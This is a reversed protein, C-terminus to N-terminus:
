RSRELVTRGELRLRGLATAVEGDFTPDNWGSLAVHALHGLDGGAAADVLEPGAPDDVPTLTLGPGALGSVAAIWIAVVLAFNTTALERQRRAAVVPLLRQPLKRSGDTAVQTCTHGLGPNEFRRLADTAFGSAGLAASLDTVELIEDVLRRVFAAVAGDGLALAITPRGVLLGCYAVASHPGNLLWLKRQQFPAIDRVVEVGVDALPPLDGEDAIVWSRHHETVTAALDVLGLQARIEALDAPTTAPVMRDVVSSPFPVVDAIWHALDPDLEQAVQLVRERLVHGNDLVNDLSAITPPPTGATRHAALGRAVVAAATPSATPDASLGPEVEYGKETVTLTVLKTTPAAIADIAAEAGTGVSTMAGIVRGPTRRAPERETVTYLGDQPALQEEARRSHLSVGRITAPWGDRLLADAYVGLHARSFAGVGVHVLAPVAARDYTPVALVRAAALTRLSLRRGGEASM